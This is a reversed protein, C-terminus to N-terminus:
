IPTEVIGNRVRHRFEAKLSIRVDGVLVLCGGVLTEAEQHMLEAIRQAGRSPHRRWAGHPRWPPLVFFM